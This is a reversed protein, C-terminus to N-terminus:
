RVTWKSKSKPDVIDFTGVKGRAWARCADFALLNGRLLVPSPPQRVFPLLRQAEVKDSRKCADFFFSQANWDDPYRQLVDDYGRKVAAWDLTPASVLYDYGSAAAAWLLRGAMGRGEAASNVHAAHNIFGVMDADSGGQRPELYAMRAFWIHQYGSDHRTAAFFVRDLEEAGEGLAGGVSIRAEYWAPNAPAKHAELWDRSRALHQRFSLHSADGVTDAYGNGREAWAHAQELEALFLWANSSAPHRQALAKLAAECADWQSPTDLGSRLERRLGGLLIALKWRGDPLRAQTQLYRDADALLSDFQGAAVRQAVDKHMAEVAEYVPLDAHCPTAILWALAAILFVRM